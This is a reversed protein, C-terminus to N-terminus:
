ITDFPSDAIKEIQTKQQTSPENPPSPNPNNSACGLCYAILIPLALVNSKKM